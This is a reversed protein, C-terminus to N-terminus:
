MVSWVCLFIGYCSSPLYLLIGSHCVRNYCIKVFLM